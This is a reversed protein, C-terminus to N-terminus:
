IRVRYLEEKHPRIDCVFNSYTVKRDAPIDKKHIFKLKNTGEITEYGDALRGLENNLAKKWIDRTDRKTLLVDLPLKKGDKDFIYNMNLLPTNIPTSSITTPQRTKTKTQLFTKVPFTDLPRQSPTLQHVRPLQSIHSSPNYINHHKLTTLM